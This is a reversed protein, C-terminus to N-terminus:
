MTHTPWWCVEVFPLGALSRLILVDFFASDGQLCLGSSLRKGEANIMLNRWFRSLVGQTQGQMRLFSTLCCSQMMRGLMAVQSAPFSPSKSWKGLGTAVFGAGTPRGMSAGPPPRFARIVNGPFVLCFAKVLHWSYYCVTMDYSDYIYFSHKIM